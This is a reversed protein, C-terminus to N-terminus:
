TRAHLRTGLCYTLRLSPLSRRLSVELTQDVFEIVDGITSFEPNNCPRLYPMVMLGLRPDFPDPLIEHIRVCHNRPDRISAFFQAIEEEQGKKVFSKIAVLESDSLRKADM